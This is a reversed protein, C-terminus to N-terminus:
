GAIALTVTGAIVAAATDALEAEDVAVVAVSDTVALVPARVAAAVGSGSDPDVVVLDVRDGTRLPLPHDGRPVGLARMGRPLAAAVGSQGRRGVQPASLVQGDYVASRLARGVPLETLASRATAGRPLSAIRVDDDRLVHGAPLDRLAVVVDIPHGYREAGAEARALLQYTFGATALAVVV